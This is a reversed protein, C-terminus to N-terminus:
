LMTTSNVCFKCIKLYDNYVQPINEFVSFPILKQFTYRHVSNICNSHTQVMLIFEFLRFLSLYHLPNFLCEEVCYIGPEIM